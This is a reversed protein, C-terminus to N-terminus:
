CSPPATEALKQHSTIQKALASILTDKSADGPTLGFLNIKAWKLEKEVAAHADAENPYAQQGKALSM